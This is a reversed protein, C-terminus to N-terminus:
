NNVVLLQNLAIRYACMRSSKEDCKNNKCKKFINMLYLNKMPILRPIFTKIELMFKM